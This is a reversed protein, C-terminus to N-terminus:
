ALLKLSKGLNAFEWTGPLYCILQSAMSKLTEPAGKVAALIETQGTYPSTQASLTTMRKLKSTFHFRSVIQWAKLEKASGSPPSM